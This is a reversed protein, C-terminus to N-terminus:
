HLPTQFRHRSDIRISNLQNINLTTIVSSPSHRNVTDYGEQSTPRLKCVLWAFATFWHYVIVVVGANLQRPGFRLLVATSGDRVVDDFGFLFEADLPLLQHHGGVVVGSSIDGTELLVRHQLESDTGNVLGADAFGGVGGIVVGDFM